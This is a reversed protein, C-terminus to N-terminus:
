NAFLQDYYHKRNNYFHTSDFIYSNMISVPHGSKYIDLHDLELLCHGIEHAILQERNNENYIWFIKDITIKKYNIGTECLGVIDENFKGYDIEIGDFSYHKGRKIGENLVINVLPMLEPNQYPKKLFQSACGILFLCMFLIKKM